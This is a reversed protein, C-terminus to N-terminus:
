LLHLFIFIGIGMWAAVGVFGQVRQSLLAEFLYFFFRYIICLIKRESFSDLRLLLLLLLLLQHLLPPPALPLALLLPM